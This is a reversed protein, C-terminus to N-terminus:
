LDPNIQMVFPVCCLLTLSFTVQLEKLSVRCSNVAQIILNLICSGSLHFPLVKMHEKSFIGKCVRRLTDLCKRNAYAAGISRSTGALLCGCHQKCSGFCCDACLVAHGGSKHKTHLHSNHMSLGDQTLVSHEFETTCAVFRACIHRKASLLM